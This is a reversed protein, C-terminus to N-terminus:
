GFVCSIGIGRFVVHRSTLLSLIRLVFIVRVYYPFFSIFVADFLSSNTGLLFLTGIIELLIYQLWQLLYPLQEVKYPM